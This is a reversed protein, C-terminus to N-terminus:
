EGHDKMELACIRDVLIQMQKLNCGAPAKNLGTVLQLNHDVERVDGFLSEEVDCSERLSWKDRGVGIGM